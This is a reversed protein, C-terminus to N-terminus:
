IDSGVGHGHRVRDVGLEGFFESGEMQLHDIFGLRVVTMGTPALATFGM